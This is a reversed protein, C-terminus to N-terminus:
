EWVADVGPSVYSNVSEYPEEDMRALDDLTWLLITQEIDQVFFAASKTFPASSVIIGYPIREPVMAGLLQRVVNLPVRSTSKYRKVEVIARDDRFPEISLDFGYDSSVMTRHANLGKSMFWNQILEQFERPALTDLLEPRELLQRIAEKPSQINVIEYPPMGDLDRSMLYTEVQMLVEQPRAERPVYTMSRLDSPMRDFDGVLIIKKNKALAYGLEFMVNSNERDVFAIFVSCQNIQDTIGMQWNDGAELADAVIVSEAGFRPLTDRLFHAFMKAGQDHFPYSIFVKRM